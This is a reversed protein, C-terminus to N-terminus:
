QEEKEPAGRGRWRPGFRGTRQCYAAYPAGWSVLLVQEEKAAQRRFRWVAWALLPLTLGHALVLTLGLADLLFALYIPHRVWHYPGTTILQQPVDRGSDSWARGLTRTAWIQLGIGALWLAAGPVVLLLSPPLALDRLGPLWPTLLLLLTYGLGGLLLRLRPPRRAPQDRRRAMALWRDVVVTTLLLLGALGWRYDPM